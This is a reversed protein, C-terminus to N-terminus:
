RPEKIPPPGVFRISMSGDSIVLHLEKGDCWIYSWGTIVIELPGPNLKVTMPYVISFCLFILIIAFMVKFVM